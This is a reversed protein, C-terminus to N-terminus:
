CMAELLDGRSPRLPPNPTYRVNGVWGSGAPWGELLSKSRAILM